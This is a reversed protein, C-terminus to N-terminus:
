LLIVQADGAIPVVGGPGGQPPQVNGSNTSTVSNVNVGAVGFFQGGNNPNVTGLSVNEVNFAVIRSDGTVVRKKGGKTKVVVSKIRGSLNEFVDLRSSAPSLTDLNFAPDVGATIDTGFLTGAVVSNIQNLASVTSNLVSKTVNFFNINAASLSSGQFKQGQYSAINGTIDFVSGNAQNIVVRNVNGDSNLTLKNASGLSMVGVNGTIDWMVNSVSQVRANHLTLVDQRGAFDGTLTLATDFQGRLGKKKGTGTSKLNTITGTTVSGGVARQVSLNAIRRDIDINSAILQSANFQTVTSFDFDVNLGRAVGGLLIRQGNGNVTWTGFRADNRIRIMEFANQELGVGNGEEDSGGPNLTINGDFNGKLRKAGVIDIVKAAAANINSGFLAQWAKLDITGAVDITTNRGITSIDMRTLDTLNASNVTVTAFDRLHNIDLSFIYDFEASGALNVQPAVFRGLREGALTVIDVQGDGKKAKQVTIILRSNSDTDVLTLDKIGGFGKNDRVKNYEIRGRGVLRITYRDGDSDTFTGKNGYLFGDATFPSEEILIIDFPTSNQPTGTRLVINNVIDGNNKFLAVQTEAFSLVGDKGPDGSFVNIPGGPSTSGYIFIRANPYQLPLPVFVSGDIVDLEFFIAGDDSRQNGNAGPIAGPVIGIVVNYIPTGTRVELKFHPLNSAPQAQGRTLIGSRGAGAGIVSNLYQIVNINKAGDFWRQLALKKKGATFKATRKPLPTVVMIDGTFNAAVDRVGLNNAVLHAIANSMNAINAFPNKANFEGAFLVAMDSLVANNLDPVGNQLEASGYLTWAKGKLEPNTAEYFSKFTVGGGIQSALVPHLAPDIFIPSNNNGGVVVTMYDSFAPQEATFFIDYGAFKQQLQAVIIDIAQQTQSPAGNINTASFAPVDYNTGYGFFNGVDAGDFDLFVVQSPEFRVNDLIVATDYIGDGQDEISIVVDVTTTGAPLPLSAILSQTRGDFFTPATSLNPDFLANDINLPNGAQDVAIEVGNVLISLTDNVGANIFEPFEESLMTLDIRFTAAVGGFDPVALTFSIEARDGDTGSAGLDTGQSGSTNPVTDIWDAIGTSLVLFDNGGTPFQFLTTGTRTTVADPDGTYTVVTGDPLDLAAAIQAPTAAMLLRPELPQLGLFTRDVTVDHQTGGVNAYTGPRMAATAM